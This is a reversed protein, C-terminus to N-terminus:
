AEIFATQQLDLPKSTRAVILCFTAGPTWEPPRPTLGVTSGDIRYIQIDVIAVCM